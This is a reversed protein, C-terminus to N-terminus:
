ARRWILHWGRATEVPGSMEGLELAFAVEEFNIPQTGRKIWGLDGGSQHTQPCDSEEHAIEEFTHIGKQIDKWINAIKAHAEDKSRVV